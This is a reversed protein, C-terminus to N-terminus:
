INVGFGFQWAQMRYTPTTPNGNQSTSNLDFAYRGHLSLTRSVDVGVGAVGQLRINSGGYQYSSRDGSSFNQNFQSSNSILYSVQPGLYFNIAGNSRFKALVPVDISQSRQTYSGSPTNASFGKQTFLVAPVISVTYNVPFDINVGATFGAINSTTFNSGTSASSLNGSLQVGFKTEFYSDYDARANNFYTQAKVSVSTLIIAALIILRKM